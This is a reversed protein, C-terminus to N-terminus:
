TPLQMDALNFHKDMVILRARQAMDAFWPIEFSRAGSRVLPLFLDGAVLRVAPADAATTVALRGAKVSAKVTGLGFARLAMTDGWDAQV